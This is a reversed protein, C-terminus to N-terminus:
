HSQSLCNVNSNQGLTLCGISPVDYLGRNMKKYIYSQNLGLNKIVCDFYTKKWFLPLFNVVRVRPSFPNRSDLLSDPKLNSEYKCCLSYVTAHCGQHKVNFLIFVLEVSVSM